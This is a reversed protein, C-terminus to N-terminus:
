AAWDCGTRRPRSCGKANLSEIVCLRVSAFGIFTRTEPRHTAIITIVTRFLLSLVSTAGAITSLTDTQSPFSLGATIRATRGTSFLTRRWTCELIRGVFATRTSTWLCFYGTPCIASPTRINKSYGTYQDRKAAVRYHVSGPIGDMSTNWLM